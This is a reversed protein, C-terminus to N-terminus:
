RNTVSFLSADPSISIRIRRTNRETDVNTFPNNACYHFRNDCAESETHNENCDHM